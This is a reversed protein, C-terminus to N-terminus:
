VGIICWCPLSLQGFAFSSSLSSRLSSKGCTRLPVVDSMKDYKRLNRFMDGTPILEM